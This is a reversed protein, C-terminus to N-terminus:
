SIKLNNKTIFEKATKLCTIKNFDQQLKKIRAKEGPTTAPNFKLERCYKSVKGFLKVLEDNSYVEDIETKPLDEEGLTERKKAPKPSPDMVKKEPIDWNNELASYIYGNGKNNKKSYEVVTQIRELTLGRNEVLFMINKCTPIDQIHEMLYKKFKNMEESLFSSSNKKPEVKIEPEKYNITDKTTTTIIKRNNNNDKIILTPNETEPRVTEPFATEPSVGKNNTSESTNSKIKEKKDKPDKFEKFLLKEGEEVEIYKEAEQWSTPVEFVLYVSDIIHGKSNRIEFFNCYGYKRLENLATRTADRKDTKVTALHEINIQWNEPRGVLYTLLGSAAWSVRGDEIGTKDIKIYPNERIVTKVIAM